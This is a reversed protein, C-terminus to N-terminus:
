HTFNFKVSYSVVVARGSPPRGFAVSEFARVMCLQFEEGRLKTRPKGVRPKGGESGITLDAGFTGVSGPEDILRYCDLYRGKARELARLFDDRAAADKASGGVHLGFSKVSLEPLPPGHREPAVPGPAVPGPAVSSGPELPPPTAPAVSKAGAGALPPQEQPAVPSSEPVDPHAAPEDSPSRAGEPTKCAVLLSGTVLV